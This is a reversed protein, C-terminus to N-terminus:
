MALRRRVLGALALLGTGLLVIGSPEPVGAISSTTVADETNSSGQPNESFGLTAPALPLGNEFLEGALMIQLSSLITQSTAKFTLDETGALNEVSFLNGSLVSADSFPFFVPTAGAFSAFVGEAVTVDYLSAPPNAVGPTYAGGGFTGPGSLDIEDAFALPASAGLVVLALAALKSLYKM